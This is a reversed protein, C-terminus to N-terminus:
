ALADAVAPEQRGAGAIRRFNDTMMREADAASVGKLRGFERYVAGGGGPPLPVGAATGFPGDTEPLVRDTPM